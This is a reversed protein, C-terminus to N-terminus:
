LDKLINKIDEVCTAVIAVGRAQLVLNLNYQQLKTLSALTKNTKVEIALFKGKYCAILDPVGAKTAKVVKVVYAGKSELYKKIKTQVLQESGM